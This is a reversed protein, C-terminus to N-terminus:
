KSHNKRVMDVFRHLHLDFLLDQEDFYPTLFAHFNRRKVLLSVVRQRLIDGNQFLVFESAAIAVM